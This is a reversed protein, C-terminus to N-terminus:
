MNASATLAESMNCNFHKFKSILDLDNPTFRAIVDIMRQCIDLYIFTTRAMRASARVTESIYIKLNTVM